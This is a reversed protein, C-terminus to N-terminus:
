VVYNEYRFDNKISNSNDISSNLSNLVSNKNLVYNIFPKKFLNEENDFSNKNTINSNLGKRVLNVSDVRNLKKLPKYISKQSKLNRYNGNASYNQNSYTHNYSHTSNYRNSDTTTTKTTTTTTTTSITNFINNENKINSNQSDQVLNSNWILNTASEADLFEELSFISSLFSRDIYQRSDLGCLYFVFLILKSFKM